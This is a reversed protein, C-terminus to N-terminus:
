SHQVERWLNAHSGTCVIIIKCGKVNGMSIPLPSLQVSAHTLVNLLPRFEQGFNLTTGTFLYILVYLQVGKFRM